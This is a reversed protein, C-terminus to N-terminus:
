SADDKSVISALEADIPQDDDDLFDELDPFRAAIDLCAEQFERRVTGLPRELFRAIEALSIEGNKKLGRDDLIAHLIDSKLQSRKGVGYAAIVQEIRERLVRQDSNSIGSDRMRQVLRELVDERDLREVQGWVEAIVKSRIGFLVKRNIEKGSRIRLLTRTLLEEEVSHLHNRLGKRIAYARAQKLFADYHELWFANWAREYATRNTEAHAHAEVVAALARDFDSTPESM